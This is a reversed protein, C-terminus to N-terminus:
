FKEFVLEENPHILKIKNKSPGEIRYKRSLTDVESSRGTTDWGIFDLSGPYLYSYDLWKQNSLLELYIATDSYLTYFGYVNLISDKNLYIQYEFLNNQFNYFVTDGPILKWKGQIKAAFGDVDVFIKDCSICTLLGFFIIGIINKM